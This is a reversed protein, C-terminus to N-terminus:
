LKHWYKKLKNEKAKRMMEGEYQVTEKATTFTELDEREAGSGGLFSTPSAFINKPKNKELLSKPEPNANALRIVQDSGGPSEPDKLEKVVAEANQRKKNKRLKDIQIDKEDIGKSDEATAQEGKALKHLFSM